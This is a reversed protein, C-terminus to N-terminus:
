AAENREPIRKASGPAFPSMCRDFQEKHVVSRRRQKGPNRRKPPPFRSQKRPPERNPATSSRRTNESTDRAPRPARSAPPANAIELPGRRISLRPIQLGAP